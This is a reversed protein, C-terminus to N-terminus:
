VEIATSHDRMDGDSVTVFTGLIKYFIVMIKM